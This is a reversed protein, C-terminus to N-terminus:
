SAARTIVTDTNASDDLEPAETPKGFANTLAQEVKELAEPSVKVGTQDDKEFGSIQISLVYETGSVHLWNHNVFFNRYEPSSTTYSTLDTFMSEVIQAHAEDIADFSFSLFSQGEDMAARLRQPIEYIDKLPTKNQIAYNYKTGSAAPFFNRDWSQISGRQEDNLNFSAYGGTGQDFYVDVHYWENDLKVLNWSHYAESNHVVMCEINLMQMFMRFTTAYGVCVANHYKLTGYPNDSDSSTKPIVQLVGTDYTLKTSMWDYVAKEKEYDSMGDKIIEELVATAMSLTEKQKEDLGADSGSKYADSIPLTSRIEFQGGMIPVGDEKPQAAAEKESRLDFVAKATFLSTATSCLVAALLVATLVYIMRKKQETIM